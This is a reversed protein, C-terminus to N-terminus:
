QKGNYMDNNSVSNKKNTSPGRVRDVFHLSWTSLSIKTQRRKVARHRTSLVIDAVYYVFMFMNIFINSHGSSVWPWSPFAELEFGLSKLFNDGHGGLGSIGVGSLLVRQVGSFM